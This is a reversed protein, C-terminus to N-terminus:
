FMREKRQARYGRVLENEASVEDNWKDLNIWSDEDELEGFPETRMLQEYKKTAEKITSNKQMQNALALAIKEIRELLEAKIEAPFDYESDFIAIWNKLDRLEDAAIRINM